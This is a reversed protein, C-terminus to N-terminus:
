ENKIGGRRNDLQYIIMQAIEAKKTRAPIEIDNDKAFELLQKVTKKYLTDFDPIELKPKDKPVEAKIPKKLVEKKAEVKKAPPPKIIKKQPKKAMDERALIAIRERLTHEVKLIADRSTLDFIGLELRQLEYKDAKYKRTQWLYTGLVILAIIAPILVALVQIRKPIIIKVDITNSVDKEKYLYYYNISAAKLTPSGQAKAEITYTYVIKEGPDLYNMVNVLKGDDLSFYIQTFSVIDNLSIDKICITGTNEVEITVTIIEGIEVQDKDVTKNISFDITGLVIPLSSNIQITRSESSEFLNIPPYYYAKWDTKNLTINFSKIELYSINTLTLKKTDIRVLDGYQDNMSINLDPISIGVPGLNKINVSLNIHAGIIPASNNTTYSIEMVRVYPSRDKYDVPASFYVENPTAVLITTNLNDIKEPNKYTILAGTIGGSNPTYFSFSLTINDNPTLQTLNYSLYNEEITFNNKDKIIGPIIISVNINEAFLTGINRINLTYLNYDGNKASYNTLTANAILSAIEYTGLTISNSRKDHQASGLLSSYQVRSGLLNIANNDRNYFTTNLDNISINFKNNPDSATLQLLITYNDPELPYFLWNLSTNYRIISYTYSNNESSALYPAMNVYQESSFNFIEFTIPVGSTYNINISVRELTNNVFNITSENKFVFQLGLDHQINHVSEVVWSENDTRLAMSSNTGDISVGSMIVPLTIPTDTITFNYDYFPTFTDFAAISNNASIYSYKEGPKLYWNDENWISETNNFYPILADRYAPIIPLLYIVTMMEPSYPFLNMPFFIGPSIEVLKFPDPYYHDAVGAGFTDFYFIRPTENMGLFEELTHPPGPGGYPPNTDIWGWITDYLIQGAGPALIDFLAVLDVEIETPVGWVTENGTVEATINLSYDRYIGYSANNGILEKTIIMNPESYSVNYSVIINDVPNLIGTPIFPLGQFGIQELTNVPDDPDNLNVPVVYNRYIGDENVWLLKMSYDELTSVDIEDYGALFLLLGLQEIMYDYLEFYKPTFDIIDTGLINIDIESMIAGILAIYIKESPHLPAGSYGIADWLNFSYENNGISTIGEGKGEYQIVLTSYHSDNSLAFSGMVDTLAGLTDPDFMQSQNFGGIYQSLNGLLGGYSSAIGEIQSFIDEIDLNQLYTLDIAGINFDIQDTSIEIGEELMNLSNILMYTTSLHYNNLYTQDTLRNIDLAKWYGDMPLNHTVEEFYLDWDPYYAVFPFFHDNTSNIMILDLEFKGKIIKFAREARNAADAASLASDYYLFGVFCNYTVGFLNGFISETIISPFMGPKIGNSASLFINCKYFAPDNVDFHTFINTDNTFLSQRIISENGAVYASIQEAYLDSGAVDSSKIKENEFYIDSFDELVILNNVDPTFVTFLPVVLLAVVIFFSFRRKFKKMM